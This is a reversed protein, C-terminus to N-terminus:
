STLDAYMADLMAPTISHGTQPDVSFRSRAVRVRPGDAQEPDAVRVAVPQLPQWPLLVEDLDLMQIQDRTAGVSGLVYLEEYTAIRYLEPDVQEYDGPVYEDELYFPFSGACSLEESDEPRPRRLADDDM